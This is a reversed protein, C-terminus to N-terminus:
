VRLLDISFGEPKPWSYAELIASDPWHTVKVLMLVLGFLILM